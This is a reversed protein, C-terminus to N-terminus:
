GTQAEQQKKQEWFAILQKRNVDEPYPLSQSDFFAKWADTSANKSPAGDEQPPADDVIPEGDIEDIKTDAAPDAAPAAGEPTHEWRSIENVYGGDILRQVHPTLSWTVRVGKALETCPTISGEVTVNITM